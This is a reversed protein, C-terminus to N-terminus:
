DKERGHVALDRIRRQPSSLVERATRGLDRCLRDVTRTTFAPSHAWLDGSVYGDHSHRLQFGLSVAGSFASMMRPRLTNTPLTRPEMRIHSGDPATVTAAKTPAHPMYNISLDFLSGNGHPASPLEHRLVGVPLRHLHAQRTAEHVRAALEGFSPNGQLDVRVPVHDSLLGITHTLEPADRNATVSGIMVGDGLYPTLSAVVLARM